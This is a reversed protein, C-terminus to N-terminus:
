QERFVPNETVEDTSWVTMLCSVSFTHRCKDSGTKRGLPNAKKLQPSHAEQDLLLQGNSACSAIRIM